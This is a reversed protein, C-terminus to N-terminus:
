LKRSKTSITTLTPFTQNQWELLNRKLTNETKKRFFLSFIKPVEIEMGNQDHDLDSYLYAESLYIPDVAGSAENVQRSTFLM